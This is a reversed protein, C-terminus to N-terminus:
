FAGIVFNTIVFAISIVILGVISYTLLNKAKTVAAADGRSGAYMLGAVVIVIVAVAGTIFYFTNLINDVVQEASLTPVDQVDTTDLLQAFYSYFIAKM